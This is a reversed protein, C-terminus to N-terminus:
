EVQIWFIGQTTLNKMNCETAGLWDNSKLFSIPQFKELRFLKQFQRVQICKYVVVELHSCDKSKGDYLFFTPFPSFVPIWCDSM